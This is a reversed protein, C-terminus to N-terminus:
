TGLKELFYRDLRIVNEQKVERLKGNESHLRINAWQSPDKLGWSDLKTGWKGVRHGRQLEKCKEWRQKLHPPVCWRCHREKMKQWPFGVWRWPEVVISSPLSFLPRRPARNCHKKKSSQLQRYGRQNEINSQSSHRVKERTGLITLEKPKNRWQYINMLHLLVLCTAPQM